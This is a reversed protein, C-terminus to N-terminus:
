SRRGCNPSLADIGDVTCESVVRASGQLAALRVFGCWMEMGLDWM